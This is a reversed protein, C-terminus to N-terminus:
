GRRRFLVRQRSGRGPHSWGPLPSQEHGGDGYRQVGAGAAVPLPLPELAGVVQLFEQGELEVDTRGQGGQLGGEPQPPLGAAPGLGALPAVIDLGAMKM